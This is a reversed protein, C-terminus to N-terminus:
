ILLRLIINLIVDAPGLIEPNYVDYLVTMADLAGELDDEVPLWEFYKGFEKGVPELTINPHQEVDTFAGLIEKLEQGESDKMLVARQMRAIMTSLRHTMRYTLIPNSAVAVARAEADLELTDLLQTDKIGSIHRITTKEYDDM